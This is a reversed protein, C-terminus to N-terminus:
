PVSSFAMWPSRASTEKPTDMRKGAPSNAAPDHQGRATGLHHIAKTPSMVCLLSSCHETKVLWAAPTSAGSPPDPQKINARGRQTIL